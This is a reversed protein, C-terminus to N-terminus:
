RCEQDQEAQPPGRVRRRDHRRFRRPRVDDQDHGVVLAVPVRARRPVRVDIRRLHVSQRGLPSLKSPVVGGWDAGRGAGAHHGTAVVQPGPQVVCAKTSIGQSEPLYGDGLQETRDTVACSQESFPVQPLVGPVLRLLTPEILEETVVVAVDFAVLM